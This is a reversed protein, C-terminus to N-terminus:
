PPYTYKIRKGFIYKFTITGELNTQHVTIDYSNLTALTPMSPHGFTNFRHASIVAEKPSFTEIFIQSSSTNSGHHAVKLIDIEFDYKLAFKEETEAEIDGTFLYHEGAIYLSLILSNNNENKDIEFLPYIQIEINGCTINRDTDWVQNNNTIFNVVEFSKVIDNTEGYHDSHMHSIILYDIRKINMNKLYNVVSDYDDVNGTDILINCQNYSDKIFIADGYVDIFTVSKIPNFYQINSTLFLVLIIPIINKIQLKKEELSIFFKFVFVYYLILLLPNHFSMKLKLLDINSFIEISYEFLIIIQYFIKDFLPIIFTLYSLPLILFTVFYIYFLNYFISLLNIEYNVNMILPITALNAVLAILFLQNIKSKKVLIDKSLIIIFTVIFSLVFGLSYMYYPNYIILLLFILSLIDVTSLKIMYRKNILLFIFMMSARVVSPTFSTIVMYFVLFLSILIDSNKNSIKLENLLKKLALVIIGIHMGSVAFLHSIGLNNINDIIEDEFDDKDAIIFTKVYEESFHINKDIYKEILYPIKQIIFKNDVIEYDDVYISQYIHKSKLYLKYNFSYPVTPSEITKVEGSIILIDGPALVIDDKITVKILRNNIKGTFSTYNNTSVDSIVTVQYEEKLTISRNYQLFYSVCLIISVAIIYKIHNRKNKFLFYIYPIFIILYVYNNISLLLVLIFLVYYILNNKLLSVIKLIM